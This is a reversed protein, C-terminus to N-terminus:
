CCNCGIDNSCSSLSLCLCLCLCLFLSLYLSLSISISLYLSLSIYISLSIYLFLSLSIYIYISNCLNYSLHLHRHFYLSLLARFLSSSSVKIIIVRHNKKYNGYKCIFQFLLNSSQTLMENQGQLSEVLPLKENLFSTSSRRSNM